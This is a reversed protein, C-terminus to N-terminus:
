KQTTQATIKFSFPVELYRTMEALALDQDDGLCLIKAKELCFCPIEERWHAMTEGKNGILLGFVEM